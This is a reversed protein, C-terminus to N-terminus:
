CHPGRAAAAAGQAPLFSDTDGHLQEQGRASVWGGQGLRYSPPVRRVAGPSGQGGAGRGGATGPASRRQPWTLAM